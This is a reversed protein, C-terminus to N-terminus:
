GTVTGDVRRHLQSPNAPPLADDPVDQYAVPRIFRRLAAAGVSSVAPNTTAPWPGGHQQAWTVAVGTPWGNVLVRGVHQSLQDVLPGIEPDHQDGGQVAAALSGPLTALVTQREEDSGYEAVLAMPGFCEALLRSGARLLQPRVALVAPAVAWGAPSPTTTAVVTAGADVLEDIGAAYASAIAATLMWGQPAAAELAARVREPM